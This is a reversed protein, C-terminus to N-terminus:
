AAGATGRQLDSGAPSQDRRLAAAAATVDAIGRYREPHVLLDRALRVCATECAARCDPDAITELDLVHALGFIRRLIKAGCFGMADDFLRQLYAKREEALAAQAAPDAFLPQPYADGLGHERWLDLFADRFREWLEEVTELLWRQQEERPQAATAHGNQSIYSILLNALVAGVDFGMPGYFAFEQDIIRTDQPTVMISGTHLDGHILAEASNMYRLKWRSVALKLPVDRRIEEALGDMQPSNWRNREHLRYPETFVMDEMIRCLEVNGGFLAARRRKEEAPQALNSTFFLSRALYDAMQEAFRPYRIGDVLGRRLIIHPSLCEVVLLYLRPDYHYVEPVRRGVYRACEILAQYEYWIRELTLPWSEGVLRVYPLAQKVCVSGAAGHVLFVLNVNGDGVDAARWDAPSGGLREAIAPLGALYAPLTREDLPRYGEPVPLPM